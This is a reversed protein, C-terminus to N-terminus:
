IFCFFPWCLLMRCEKGFAKKRISVCIVSLNKKLLMEMPVEILVNSNETV